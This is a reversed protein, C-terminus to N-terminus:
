ARASSASTAASPRAACSSPRATASAAGCRSRERAAGRVLARRLRLERRRRRELRRRHRDRHRRLHEDREHPRLPGVRGARRGVGVEGRALRRDLPRHHRGVGVARPPRRRHQRPPRRREREERDRRGRDRRERARRRLRVEPRALRAERRPDHRGVRLQPARPEFASGHGAGGAARRRVLSQRHRDLDRRAQRPVRRRHRRRAARRDDARRAEPQRRDDRGVRRRRRDPRQDRRGPHDGEARGPGPTDFRHESM